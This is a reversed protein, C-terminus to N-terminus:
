HAVNWVPSLIYIKLVTFGTKLFCQQSLGGTKFSWINRTCPKMNWHLQVQWWLGGTKHSRMKHGISHDELVPEVSCTYTIYLIHFITHFGNNLCKSLQVAFWRCIFEFVAPVTAKYWQWCWYLNVTCSFDALPLIPYIWICYFTCQVHRSLYGCQGYFMAESPLHHKAVLEVVNLRWRRGPIHPGELCTDYCPERLASRM